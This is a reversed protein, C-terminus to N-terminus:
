GDRVGETRTMAEERGPGQTSMAAAIAASWTEGSLPTESEAVVAAAPEVPEDLSDLARAIEASWTEGSASASASKRGVAARGQPTSLRALTQELTAVRDAMGMRVAERAPVMRGEGFGKRVTEAPVGRGRAVAATFMDYSGDVERQMAARAEESLPEFANGEVKYKGASVLTTKVGMMEEYGSFDQHVTYVGISGVQGSPTVAIEACQSAAWFAASAAWPNVQAVTPKQGRGEFIDTALEECGFVMGGPSDFEMVIAGVREDQRIERLQARLRLTSCIGSTEALAGARQMMVGYVPVVAIVSGRADGMGPPPTMAAWEAYGTMARTGPDFVMALGDPSTREVEPGIRMAVEDASFREGRAAMAILESMVALKSPLIAWPQEAFARVVHPSYM